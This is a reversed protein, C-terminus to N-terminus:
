WIDIHSSKRSRKGTRHFASQYADVLVHSVRLPATNALVLAATSSNIFDLLRVFDHAKWGKTKVKM